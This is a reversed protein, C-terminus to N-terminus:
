QASVRWFKAGDPPLPLSVVQPDNTLTFSLNTLWNGTALDTKGLVHHLRGVDGSISLLLNTSGRSLSLQPRRPPTVGAPDDSFDPIGDQDSDNLDDISLQWTYYDEYGPGPTNLDGDNFEVKGYYNTRHGTRRLFTTNSYLDLVQQSDNTWLVSQLTLQNFRNAASKTFAVPGELVSVSNTNTVSLSGSVTNAEPTYALEGTYETLEFVQYFSLNGGFPNPISYTCSGFASGADRYWTATFNGSGFGTINYAGPALLSPVAQSVEFFDSFGNGNTDTLAPTNMVMAGSFNEGFLEEELEV